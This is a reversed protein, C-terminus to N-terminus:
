PKEFTVGKFDDWDIRETDGDEYVVYIGNNESNVDNSGRLVFARDDLLTVRSERSSTREIRRIFGMEIDFDLDGMNGDLMEWTYAEDDDWRIAGTFKDGDQTEVTGVLPGSTFFRDYSYTYDADKFTVAGFAEWPVRVQGLSPDLVLIDRNSRNVDNSGHLVVTEGSRLLVRASRANNRGISTIEAFAIERDRGHEDEGDLIDEALVEDVDWCIYGTFSQGDRTTLTGYLRTGTSKSPRANRPVPMFDIGDIDRWRLERTGRDEDDVLIGRNSSGIDSAGGRLEIEQGSRLTLLARDRRTNELRRIHGFRIGASRSSTGSRFDEEDFEFEFGFIRMTRRREQRDARHRTREVQKSGDLVDVWSAENKDWRIFGEYVDGAQTTVRGYLRDEHVPSAALFLVLVVAVGLLFPIFTRM